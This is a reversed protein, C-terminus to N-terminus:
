SIVHMCGVGWVGEDQTNAKVGSPLSFKKKVAGGSMVGMDRPM